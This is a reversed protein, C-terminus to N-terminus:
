LPHFINTPSSISLARFGYTFVRWTEERWVRHAHGRCCMEGQQHGFVYRQERGVTLGVCVAVDVDPPDDMIAAHQHQQGEEQALVLHKLSRKKKFTERM